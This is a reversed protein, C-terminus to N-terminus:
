KLLRKASKAVKKEPSGGSKKKKGGSAGKVAKKVQKEIGSM